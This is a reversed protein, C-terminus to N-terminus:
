LNFTLSTKGHALTEEDIRVEGVYKDPIKQYDGAKTTGEKSTFFGIMTYQKLTRFWAATDDGSFAKEDVSRLLVTKDASQGWNDKLRSLGERIIKQQDPNLCVAFVQDLFHQVNVESASATKTRPLILDIVETVLLAEEHSFFDFGKEKASGQACSALFSALVTPYLAHLSIASLSKIVVRRNM